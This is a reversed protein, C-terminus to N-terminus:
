AARQGVKSHRRGYLFYIALGIAMWVILRAWTDKPLQIMLYVCALIGLTPVVPVWPTRFPRPREPDTYRLVLVGACVIAFALL